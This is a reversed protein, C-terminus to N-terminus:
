GVSRLGRVFLKIQAVGLSTTYVGIHTTAHGAQGPLTVTTYAYRRVGKATSSTCDSGEDCEGFITAKAGTVVFSSHRAIGDTGDICGDRESQQLTISRSPRLQVGYVSSTMDEGNSCPVTTFETMPINFTIAPRYVTYDVRSQMAAYAAPSPPAPAAAAPPAVSFALLATASAAIVWARM